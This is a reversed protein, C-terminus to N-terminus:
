PGISMVRYSPSDTFIDCISISVYFMHYEFGSFFFVHSIERRIRWWRQYVQGTAKGTRRFGCWLLRKVTTETVEEGRNWGRRRLRFTEWWPQVAKSSLWNWGYVPFMEKHLDKCQTIKDAFFFVCVCVCVCVLYSQEETTHKAFVTAIQVVSGAQWCACARRSGLSNHLLNISSCLSVCLFGIVNM